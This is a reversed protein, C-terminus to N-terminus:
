GLPTLFYVKRKTRGRKIHSLREKVEGANKLKKLELAAHARSIRLAAAIGDQTIDIPADFSDIYKSYQLLHFLIREGVTLTIAM